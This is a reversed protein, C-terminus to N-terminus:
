SDVGEFILMVTSESGESQCLDTKAKKVCREVACIKNKIDLAYYSHLM